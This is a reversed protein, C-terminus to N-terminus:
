LGEKLDECLLELNNESPVVDTLSITKPPSIKKINPKKTKTKHVQVQVDPTLHIKSQKEKISKNLDGKKKTYFCKM